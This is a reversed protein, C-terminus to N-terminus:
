LIVDESLVTDQKLIFIYFVFLNFLRKILIHLLLLLIGNKLCLCSFSLFWILSLNLWALSNSCDTTYFYIYCVNQKVEFTNGTKMFNCYSTLFQERALASGTLIQKYCISGLVGLETLAYGYSGNQLNLQREFALSYTQSGPLSM